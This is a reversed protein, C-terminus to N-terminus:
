DNQILFGKVNSHTIQYGKGDGLKVYKQV